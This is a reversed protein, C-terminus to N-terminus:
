GISIEIVNHSWGLCVFFNGLDTSCPFASQIEGDGDRGNKPSSDYIQTKFIQKGFLLGEKPVFREAFRQQRSLACLLPHM